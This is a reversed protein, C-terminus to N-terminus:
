LEEEEREIQSRTSTLGGFDAWTLCTGIAADYALQRNTLKRRKGATLSTAPSSKSAHKSSTTRPPAVLQATPPLPLEFAVHRSLEASPFSDNVVLKKSRAKKYQTTTLVKNSRTIDDIQVCGSEAHELVEAPSESENHLREVDGTAHLQKIASLSSTQSDQQTNEHCFQDKKQQKINFEYAENMEADHRFTSTSCYQGFLSQMSLDPTWAAENVTCPFVDQPRFAAVLECLETYSSHRSYPFRITRNQSGDTTGNKTATTLLASILTPLSLVDQSEASAKQLQLELGLKGENGALAEQLRALVKSLLAEDPISCACLEMLKRLEAMDGTELEEKQDIDGKGGGAGLEEIEIGSARTIIPIIHVVKAQTDQDMVACGMGRECSHIRVNELSTLCGPQIRNGNRFGCLAAAERVELGSDRLPKNDTQVALGIGRLQIKELTSLSGYIGARYSDLHIQSELFVSLALWVNEYGFTWSHFYFITDHSYQSVKDLLENIGEAKSPFERYPEHKTAFTTDLYMCDLRRKGLTYPLLVPNQVLSNVWWTEARIDGTYLVAQGDGEILFMVAGICHNADILTVRISNSPALEITTPTDLPLPRALKRMSRDYTVNRSELVGKAFNIRYHYKELRLLIEKTAASCYVFPARMSELGLLHDSHVHSLFCALPPTFQPQQRFYDIRIQPFEAIIGKFTSM